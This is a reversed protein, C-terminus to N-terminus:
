PSKKLGEPMEMKGKFIDTVVNGPHIYLAVVGEAKYEVDIFETFRLLALKGPQYASFGPLILHAGVSGVNVIQKDGGKLLLPLFARTLLYPGRLNVTWVDWWADPDSDAVSAPSAVVGANNVLIDLRAFKQSIELAADDISQKSTVDLKLALVEPRKRNAAAAADQLDTELSSLDSRAGIAIKSAGAKAFAIAIARGIGKSAGAIFM